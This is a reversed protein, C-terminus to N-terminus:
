VRIAEDLRLIYGNFKFYPYERDYYIKAKHPKNGGCWAKDIFYVSDNFGYEIFYIEIGGCASIYAIPKNNKIIEKKTM